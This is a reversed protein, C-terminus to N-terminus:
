KTHPVAYEKATVSDIPIEWIKVNKVAPDSYVFERSSYHRMLINLAERKEEPDEIFNVRGRCIVSKARMRYSCAVKPHQFVLEHDVSFTICVRNNKALMDISSGTPGSHLYIVGDKKEVDGPHLVYAEALMPAFKARLKNLSTTTFSKGSKVEIPSINHRNTIVPKPIKYSNLYSTKIVSLAKEKDLVKDNLHDKEM